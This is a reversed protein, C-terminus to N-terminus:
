VKERLWSFLGWTKQKKAFWEDMPMGQYLLAGIVSSFDGSQRPAHQLLVPKAIRVPCNFVRQALERLGPLQSAGGTFM